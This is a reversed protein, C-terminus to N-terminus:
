EKGRRTGRVSQRGNPYHGGDRYGGQEIEERNAKAPVAWEAPLYLGAFRMELCDPALVKM